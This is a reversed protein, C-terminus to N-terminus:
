SDFQRYTNQCSQAPWDEYHSILHTMFQNQKFIIDIDLYFAYYSCQEMPGHYINLTSLKGNQIHPRIKNKELSLLNIQIM